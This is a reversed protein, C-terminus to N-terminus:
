QLYPDIMSFFTRDFINEKNHNFFGMQIKEDDSIIELRRLKIPDNEYTLRITYLTNELYTEESITIQDVAEEISMNKLLHKKQFIDFFIKIYSKRTIFFESEQLEHNIYVGKKDSLIITIKEPNNYNIKIREGGFFIIGEQVHNINTQIFSASSNKLEDNYNFIKEYLNEANLNQSFFLILIILKTKEFFKDKAQM